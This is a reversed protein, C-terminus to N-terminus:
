KGYLLGYKGFLRWEFDAMEEGIGDRKTQDPGNAPFICICKRFCNTSFLNTIKENTNIKLAYATKANELGSQHTIEDRREGFTNTV